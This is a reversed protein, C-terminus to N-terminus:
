HNLKQYNLSKFIMQTYLNSLQELRLLGEPDYWQYLWNLSSFIFLNAFHEDQVQFLGQEIGEHIAQRFYSEYHDRKLTIERSLTEPLFQWEHFFVSADPLNAVIVNLHAHILAKLKQDPPLNPPIAQASHLFARAAGEVIEWLIEEKSAIHSYLSSGKLNLAQAIDRVSTAHYGREKFLQSAMQTIDAKRDM